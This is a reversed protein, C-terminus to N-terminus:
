VFQPWTETAGSALPATSGNRNFRSHPSSYVDDSNQSM